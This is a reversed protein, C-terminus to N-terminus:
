GKLAEAGSVIELIENTIAAQRAKNYAISLDRLLEQANDTAQHMATMRAGHEAANSDLISKYFQIKLSKPILDQVIEEKDPEFIYDVKPAKAQQGSQEVPEVPLFQEVVLRQTAANKFQNYIIDIRDYKGTAFLKMLKDAIIGANEFNLDDFLEDHSEIINYKRRSFYETVKKGVTMLHLNGDKHQAKYKQDITRLTAKIVNSNFAGCLGRNSSVPILLVKDQKRQQSYVNDQDAVDLSASLNQLIEKLKNAYPRMQLIANQAKRLKSAAVLKMASTIQQTSKVSTIRTRVEKLSPM